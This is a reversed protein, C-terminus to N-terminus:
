GECHRGLICISVDVTITQATWAVCIQIHREESGKMQRFAYPHLEVGFEEIHQIMRIETIWVRRQFIRVKSTDRADTPIRSLNLKCHLDLKLRGNMWLGSLTKASEPM